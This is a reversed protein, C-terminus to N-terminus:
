RSLDTRNKFRESFLTRKCTTPSSLKDLDPRLWMAALQLHWLIARHPHQRSKGSYHSIALRTTITTLQNLQEWPSRPDSSPWTRSFASQRHILSEMPWSFYVWLNWPDHFTLFSLKSKMPGSCVMLYTGHQDMFSYVNIEHAMFIRLFWNGSYFWM